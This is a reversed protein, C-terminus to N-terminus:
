GAGHAYEKALENAIELNRRELAEQKNGAGNTRVLSPRQAGRVQVASAQKAWSELKKVIYNVAIAENPKAERTEACAAELTALDIGQQALAIVSPNSPTAPISYRRMVVSVSAPTTEERGREQTNTKEQTIPLPYQTANRECQESAHTESANAYANADSNANRETKAWRANASAQAKRQKEKVREIEADARKQRFGDPGEVFFTELVFDVAKREATSMARALRYVLKKDAPLPRETQYYQDILRNYAGDELMSLSVTDKIWDGVHKDYFNM